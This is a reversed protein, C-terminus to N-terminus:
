KNEGEEVKISVPVKTKLGEPIPQGSAKFMSKIMNTMLPEVVNLMMNMLKSKLEENVPKEEKMRELAQQVRQNILEGYAQTMQNFFATGLSTYLQISYQILQKLIDWAIILQEIDINALKIKQTLFYQKLIQIVIQHTPQENAEAYEKLAAYLEPDSKAIVGLLRGTDLVEKPAPKRKKKKEEEINLEENFDESEGSNM